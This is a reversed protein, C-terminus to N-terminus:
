DNAAIPAALEWVLGSAPYDIAVKGRTQMALARDLVFSGFGKTAPATPTPGGLEQWRVHFMHTAEDIKWDLDVIGQDASLAGYKRANTALEFFAMSLAMASREPLTIAPGSIRIRRDGIFGSLIERAIDDIAAEGGELSLLQAHAKAYASLRNAIKDQIETDVGENRLTQGVVSQVVAFLNKVRHNLEGIMVKQQSHAQRESEIDIMAVAGGIISGEDDRVPKGVIRIWRKVGDGCLYHVDLEAHDLNETYIRALPYEGAKVRSGDAHFSVWEDYAAIHASKRIPHRVLSEVHSNGMVIRGDPAESLIVGVPVTELLTGLMRVRLSADDITTFSSDLPGLAIALEQQLRAIEAQYAESKHFPM